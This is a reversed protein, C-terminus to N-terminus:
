RDNTRFRIKREIRNIKRKGFCRPNPQVIVIKSRQQLGACDRFDLRFADLSLDALDHGDAPQSQQAGARYHRNCGSVWTFDAIAAHPDVPAGGTKCPDADAESNRDGPKDESKGSLPGPSVPEGGM